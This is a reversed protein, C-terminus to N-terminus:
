RNGIASCCDNKNLTGHFHNKVAVHALNEENYGYKDLYYRAMMGYLGPFTLGAAQEEGSAAASLAAAVKGNNIDTMKEAGIVLVTKNPNSNLYTHGMQFAMGGSACAAELRYVPSHVGMIEAIKATAHLNNDIIGGLMNGYFVVDIEEKEIGAEKIVGNIAEEVLDYLSREWLEGFVTSHYAIISNM